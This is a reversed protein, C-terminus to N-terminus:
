YTFLYIIQIAGLDPVSDPRMVSDPCMVSDPRMIQAFYAVHRLFSDSILVSDARFSYTKKESWFSM